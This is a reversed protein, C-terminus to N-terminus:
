VKLWKTSTNKFMTEADASSQANIPSVLGVFALTLVSFIFKKM